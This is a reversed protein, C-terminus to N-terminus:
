RVASLAEMNRMLTMSGTPSLLQGRLIKISAVECMSQSVKVSQTKVADIASALLSKKRKFVASKNYCSLQLQYESWRNALDDLENVLVKKGMVEETLFDETPVGLDGCFSSLVGSVLAESQYTRCESPGAAAEGNTDEDAMQVDCM